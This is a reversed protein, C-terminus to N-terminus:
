RRLSEDLRRLYFGVSTLLDQVDGPAMYSFFVEQGDLDPTIEFLMKGNMWADRNHAPYRGLKEPDRVDFRNGHAVGNRLHRVMELLPARDFYEYAMLADGLTLLAGMPRVRWVDEAMVPNTRQMDLFAKFEFEHSTGDKRRLKLRTLNEPLTDPPNAALSLMAAHAFYDMALREALYAVKLASMSAESSPSTETLALIEPM